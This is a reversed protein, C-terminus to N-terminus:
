SLPPPTSQTHALQILSTLSHHSLTSIVKEGHSSVDVLLLHGNTSAIFVSEVEPLYHIVKITDSEHLLDDGDMVSM